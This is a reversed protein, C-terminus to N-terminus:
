AAVLAAALAAAGVVHRARGTATPMSAATVTVTVVPAQTPTHRPRPPISGARLCRVMTMSYERGEGGPMYYTSRWVVPVVAEQAAVLALNDAPDHADGHYAWFADYEM